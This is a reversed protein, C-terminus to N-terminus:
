RAPDSAVTSGSRGHCRAAVAESWARRLGEAGEPRLGRREPFRGDLEAEVYSTVDVGNVTLAVVHGEIRLDEIWADTVAVDRLFVSRLRTGSLDVNRFRSGTLDADRYEIM